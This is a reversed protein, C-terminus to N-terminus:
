VSGDQTADGNGDQTNDGDPAETVDSTQSAQDSAKTQDESEETEESSEAMVAMMESAKMSTNLTYIGPQLKKHYESLLEQVYFVRADDILGRKELTKGIDLASDELEVAITIDRGPSLEKAADGFVMYGFHYSYMALRYVMVVVICSIALRFLMNLVAGLVQNLKM